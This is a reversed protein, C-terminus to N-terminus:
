RTGHRRLCQLWLAVAALAAIGPEPISADIWEHLGSVRTLYTIDGSGSGYPNSPNGPNVGWSVLGVVEPGKGFDAFAPGGSDGAASTGELLTLASASPRALVTLGDALPVQRGLTDYISSGALTNRSATGDDFDFALLGGPSASNMIVREIVNTTAYLLSTPNSRPGSAATGASGAGVLTVLAGLEDTGSYLTAPTIGAVPTSLHFLAIDCGQSHSVDPSGTWGPHQLWDGPSATYTNGAIHFELGTVAGALWNHAASLVWEPSILVGSGRYQASGERIGLWGVAAYAPGAALARASEMGGPDAVVVAPCHSASLLCGVAVGIGVPNRGLAWPQSAVRPGGGGMGGLGLPTADPTPFDAVVGNPNPNM